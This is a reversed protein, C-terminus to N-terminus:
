ILGLVNEPPRGIVAKDGKIVIPRQILIPNQAMADILQSEALDKDKLNLQKYPEEGTRLLQRADIDLKHLLKQIDEASPPTQLYLVVEPEIGNDQLLQLTQRSKSCRPNHYITWM